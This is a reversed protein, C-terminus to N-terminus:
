NCQIFKGNQDASNFLLEVVLETKLASDGPSDLLKNNLLSDALNDYLNYLSEGYGTNNIKRKDSALEFSNTLSRCDEINTEIYSLGEQLIELRGKEGWIDLSGERYLTFDLPQFIVDVGNETELIFSFNYDDNIPGTPMQKNQSISRVTKIEGILMRVLDVLHMGYNRLGRGYSGFAFQINGIKKNLKGKSFAKMIKDSRRTLNVQVKIGRKNCEEMFQCSTEYSEGLPKEVIVAKLSPFHNLIEIRIDPPTAIVVIDINNKNDLQKMTKAVAELKWTKKAYECAKSSKDVAAIWNYQNHIQLVQAHTAYKINKLMIKDKNYLSAIRGLGILVTNYM